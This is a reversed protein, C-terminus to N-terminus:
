IKKRRVAEIYDTYAPEHGAARIEAAIQGRHYGGHLVVHTLIESVASEWKEGKSNTYGVCRDEDGPGRAELFATWRGRMEEIGAACADLSLDPWVPTLPFGIGRVESREDREQIGGESREGREERGFREGQGREERREGSDGIRSLWLRETGVLHGLLRRARDPLPAERVARLSALTDRNAWDNWAFLRSIEATM